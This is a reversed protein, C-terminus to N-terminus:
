VFLLNITLPSLMPLMYWFGSPVSENVLDNNPLWNVLSFPDKGHYGNMNVDSSKCPSLSLNIAEPRSPMGTSPLLIM